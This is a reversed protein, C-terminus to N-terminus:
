TGLSLASTLLVARATIVRRDELVMARAEELRVNSTSTSACGSSEVDSLSTKGKEFMETQKYVSRLSVSNDGSVSQNKQM